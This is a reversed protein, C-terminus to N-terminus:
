SNSKIFETAGELQPYKTIRYNFFIVYQFTKM